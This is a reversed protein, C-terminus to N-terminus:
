MGSAQRVITEIFEIALHDGLDLDLEVFRMELFLQLDIQQAVVELSSPVQKSLAPLDRSSLCVSVGKSSLEQAVKLMAEFSPSEDLADLVIFGCFGALIGLLEKELPQRRSNRLKQVEELFAGALVSQKVLSRLVADLRVNEQHSFHFYVVPNTGTEQLRDILLSTLVSKGSGPKGRLVLLKEKQVFWNKFLPEDFLWLGTGPEAEQLKAMHIASHDHPYLWEVLEDRVSDDRMLKLEKLGAAAITMTNASLAAHFDDRHDQLIRIMERTEKQEFPWALKRLKSRSELTAKLRRLQKECEATSLPITVGADGLARNIELLVSQLSTLAQVCDHIDRSANKVGEIFTYTAKTLEITLSILGAVGSAVSLGDM